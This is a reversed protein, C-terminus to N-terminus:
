CLQKIVSQLDQPHALVPFIRLGTERSLRELANRDQPDSMAVTLIDRERGVPCCHLEQALQPSVIRRVKAPLKHPLLTLYPVGLKRALVPLEETDNVSSIERGTTTAIKSALAIKSTTATRRSHKEPYCTFSLQAQRAATICQQIDAHPLPFASHGIMMTHPRLLEGENASHVRWLLAEWLREQVLSAGPLKAGILVFYFTHGLLFVVDTKRVLTRLNSLFYRASQNADCRSPYVRATYDFSLTIAVLAVQETRTATIHQISQAMDHVNSVVEYTYQNATTYEPMLHPTAEKCM